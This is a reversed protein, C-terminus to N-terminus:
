GRFGEIQADELGFKHSLGQSSGIGQFQKLGGLVLDRFLM